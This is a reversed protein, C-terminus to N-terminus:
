FDCPSDTHILPFFIEDTEINDIINKVLEAGTPYGYNLSAGAGLILLTDHSFM